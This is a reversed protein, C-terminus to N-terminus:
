KLFQMALVAIGTIGLLIYYMWFYVTPYHNIHNEQYQVAHIKQPIKPISDDTNAEPQVTSEGAVQPTIATSGFMAVIVTHGDVSGIAVGADKFVTSLMNARHTDSNQWASIVSATNFYDRALNEGSARYPYGAQDLFDWPMTGTPSSHDFYHQSAMDNLKDKAAQTLRQDTNLDPLGATGREHNIAAIVTQPSLAAASIYRPTIVVSLLILVFSAFFILYHKM